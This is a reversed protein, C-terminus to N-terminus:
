FSNLITCILVFLICNFKVMNINILCFWGQDDDPITSYSTNTIEVDNNFFSSSDNVSIMFYIFYFKFFLFKFKFVDYEENYM